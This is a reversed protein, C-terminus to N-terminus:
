RIGCMRRFWNGAAIGWEAIPKGTRNLGYGHGGEAYLHMEAPVGARKLALYWVLSNEVRIFDDEAQVLFTPPVTGDLKFEPMVNLAEDALYAPYILAAFDPRYSREDLADVPKYPVAEAPASITAVLHAGASFGIAGVRAPDVGLKEANGRIFRMARAADAHAAQRRDPCRYKLVFATIGNLNLFSAIDLGEKNWALHAYGGGPCVLVAPCPAPSSAPFFHLEPETVDTYRDCGDPPVKAEKLHEKRNADEPSAFPKEAGWIQFVDRM